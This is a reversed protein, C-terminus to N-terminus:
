ARVGEVHDVVLVRLPRVGYGGRSKNEKAERITPGIKVGREIQGYRNKLVDCRGGPLLVIILEADHSEATPISDMASIPPQTTDM